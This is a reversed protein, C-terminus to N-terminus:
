TDMNTLAHPRAFAGKCKTTMLLRCRFIWWQDSSGTEFSEIKPALGKGFGSPSRFANRQEQTKEKERM